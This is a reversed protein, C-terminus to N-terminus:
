QLACVGAIVTNKDNDHGEWTMATGRCPLRPLLTM